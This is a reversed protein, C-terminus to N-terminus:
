ALYTRVSVLLSKYTKNNQLIAAFNLANYDRSSSFNETLNINLVIIVIITSHFELPIYKGVM